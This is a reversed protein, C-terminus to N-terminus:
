LAFVGRATFSAVEERDAANVAPWHRAIDEPGLIDDSSVSFCEDDKPDYYFCSSQRWPGPVVLM